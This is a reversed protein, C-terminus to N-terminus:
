KYQVEIMVAARRKQPGRKVESDHKGDLKSLGRAEHASRTHGCSAAGLSDLLAGLDM